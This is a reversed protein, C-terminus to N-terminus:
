DCERIASILGTKNMKSHGQIGYQRALSYVNQKTREKLQLRPNGVSQTTKNLTRGKKRRQKNVTRAAIEEAGDETEGRNLV